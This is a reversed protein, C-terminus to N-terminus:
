GGAPKASHGAHGLRKGLPQEPEIAWGHDDIAVSDVLFATNDGGTAPPSKGAISLAVHFQIFKTVIVA